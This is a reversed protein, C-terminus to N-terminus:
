VIVIDTILYSREYQKQTEEFHHIGYIFTEIKKKWFYDELKKTMVNELLCIFDYDQYNEESNLVYNLVGLKYLHNPQNLKKIVNNYFSMVYIKKNSYKEIMKLFKETNFNMEKIELLFIKNSKLNLVEELLLLHYKKLDKYNALSIIDSHIMPNHNIVFFGDKTTRIDCEFGVYNENQLAAQFAELSNEKVQNIKLGRHAIFKNM